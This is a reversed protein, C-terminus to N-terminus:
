GNALQQDRRQRAGAMRGIVGGILVALGFTSTGSLWRIVLRGVTMRVSYPPGYFFVVIPFDVANLVAMAAFLALAAGMPRMGIARPVLAVLIGAFLSPLVFVIQWFLSAPLYHYVPYHTVLARAALGTPVTLVLGAPWIGTTLLLGSVALALTAWPRSRWQSVALDRVTRWAQRRYRRRAEPEGDRAVSASFEEALDGLIGDAEQPSAFLEVFWAATRPPRAPSDNSMM